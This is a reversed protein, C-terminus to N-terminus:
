VLKSILKSSAKAQKDLDFNIADKTKSIVSDVLEQQMEYEMNVRDSEIRSETDSQMRAILQEREEKIKQTFRKIEEEEEVAVQRKKDKIGDIKGQYLEFRHQSERKKVAAQEFQQKVTEANNNFYEVVPGKLKWFLFIVLISLNIAPFILEMPSAHHEGAGGGAAFLTTTTFAFYVLTLINLGFARM